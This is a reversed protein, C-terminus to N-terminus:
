TGKAGSGKARRTWGPRSVKGLFGYARQQRAASKRLPDDPDLHELAGQLVQDFMAAAEKPRKLAVLETAIAWKQYLLTRPEVDCQELGDLAETYLALAMEHNGLERHAQALDIVARYTDVHDAGANRRTAELIRVRLPFEDGYLGLKRLTIALNLAARRSQDSDPGVLQDSSELVRAWLRRALEDEGLRSLIGALDFETRTIWGDDSQGSRRQASVSESLLAKAESFQGTDRLVRAVRLLAELTAPDSEGYLEKRADLIARAEEISPQSDEGM